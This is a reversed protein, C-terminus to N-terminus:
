FCGGCCLSPFLLDVQSHQLTCGVAFISDFEMSLVRDPNCYLAYSRTAIGPRQNAFRLVLPLISESTPMNVSLLRGLPSKALDIITPFLLIGGRIELNPESQRQNVHRRRLMELVIYSGVSHGILIIKVSSSGPRQFNKAAESLQSETYLIQDQLSIPTASFPTGSGQFGALHAICLRAARPTSVQSGKFMSALTSLFHTYFQPLGPNGPVFFVLYQECESDPREGKSIMGFEFLDQYSRGDYELLPITEM